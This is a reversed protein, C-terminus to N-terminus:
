FSFSRIQTKSLRLHKGVHTTFLKSLGLLMLLVILGIYIPSGQRMDLGGSPVLPISGREEFNLSFSSFGGARNQSQIGYKSM